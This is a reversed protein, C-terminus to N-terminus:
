CPQVILYNVDLRGVKTMPRSTEISSSSISRDNCKLAGAASGILILSPEAESKARVTLDSGPSKLVTCHLSPVKSLKLTREGTKLSSEEKEAGQAFRAGRSGATCTPASESKKKKKRKKGSAGNLSGTCSGQRCLAETKKEVPM